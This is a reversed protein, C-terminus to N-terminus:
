FLNATYIGSVGKRFLEDRRKESEIPHVFIDISCKKGLKIYNKAEIWKDPVTLAIIEPHKKLLRATLNKM